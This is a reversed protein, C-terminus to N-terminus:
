SLSVMKSNRLDPSEGQKTLPIKHLNTQLDYPLPPQGAMIQVLLPHPPRKPLQQLIQQKHTQLHQQPQQKYDHHPNPQPQQHHHYSHHANPPEPQWGDDLSLVDYRSHLTIVGLVRLM